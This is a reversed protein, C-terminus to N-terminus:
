EPEAWSWRFGVATEENTWARVPELYSVDERPRKFLADCQIGLKKPRHRNM